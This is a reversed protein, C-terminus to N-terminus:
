ESMGNALYEGIKGYLADAAKDWMTPELPGDDAKFRLKQQVWTMAKDPDEPYKELAEKTTKIFFRGHRFTVKVVTEENVKNETEIENGELDLQKTENEDM